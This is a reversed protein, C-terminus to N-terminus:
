AEARQPVSELLAILDHLLGSTESKLVDLAREASSREDEPLRVPVGNVIKAKTFLYAQLGSDSYRKRSRISHPMSGGARLMCSTAPRRHFEELHGIDRAHGAVGGGCESGIDGCPPQRHSRSGRTAQPEEIWPINFLKSPLPFTPPHLSLLRARRQRAPRALVLLCRMRLM